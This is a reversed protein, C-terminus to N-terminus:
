VRVDAGVGIREAEGGTVGDTERRGDLVAAAVCDLVAADVTVWVVVKVVEPVRVPVALGDCVGDLTAVAVRVGAGAQAPPVMMLESAAMGPRSTHSPSSAMWPPEGPSEMVEQGARPATPALAVNGAPAYGTSPAPMVPPSALQCGACNEVEM